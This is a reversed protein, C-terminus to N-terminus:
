LSWDMGEQERVTGGGYGKSFRCKPRLYGSRYPDICDLLWCICCPVTHRRVTPGCGGNYRPLRRKAEAKCLMVPLSPMGQAGAAIIVIQQRRTSPRAAPAPGRLEEAGSQTNLKTSPQTHVLIPGRMVSLRFCPKKAYRDLSTRGCQVALLNVTFFILMSPVGSSRSISVSM